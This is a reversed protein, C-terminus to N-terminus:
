RENRERERATEKKRDQRSQRDRTQRGSLNDGM